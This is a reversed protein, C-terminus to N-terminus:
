VGRAQQNRLARHGIFQGHKGAGSTISPCGGARSIDGTARPRRKRVGRSAIRGPHNNTEEHSQKGIHHKVRPHLVAAWFSFVGTSRKPRSSGLERM